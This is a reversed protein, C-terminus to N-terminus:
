VSRVEKAFEKPTKGYAEKFCKGFYSPSTFGVSYIIETVRLTTSHMLDIAKKMKYQRVFEVSNLGTISKIKRYLQMRSFGLETEIVGVSFKADSLNKDVVAQVDTIFQKDEEKLDVELVDEDGSGALSMYKKKLQHRLTLLKEIRILLHELTFPKPIYSDAGVKLGIMRHEQDANATLIIIPIHSTLDNKKLEDCLEYGDMVPMMVDTIILDPMVEKAKELGEQGNKAFHIKFKKSLYEVLFGRIEDNDEVVLIEENHFVVLDGKAGFETQGEDTEILYKRRSEEIVTDVAETEAEESELESIIPLLVVFTAGTDHGSEAYIYGNHLEILTKSFALGIGVGDRKRVYNDAGKLQYFQDFILEEYGEPLGAGNDSVVVKIYEKSDDFDEKLFLPLEETNYAAIAINISDGHTSYKIANDVLNSLVKELKDPDFDMMLIDIESNFQLSINQSESYSTFFVSLENIFAVINANKQELPLHGTEVKRFDLLQKVLRLMRETSRQIMSLDHSMGAEASKEKIPGNLLNSIITLPTKLEHSINTFFLFKATNLEKINEKELHELKLENEFEQRKQMIFIALFVLGIIVILYMVYSWTTEYWYPQIEFDISLYNPNWDGESNSTMVSFSYVGPSLFTYSALRNEPNTEVWDDNVGELRYKYKSKQPNSFQMSSFEVSIADNEPDLVLRNNEKPENNNYSYKEIAVEEGSVLFRTFRISSVNSVGGIKQPNFYTIGNIGGFFMTGNKDQWSSWKRFNNHQLGDSANYQKFSNDTTNLNSIGEDTSIWLHNASDMLIAYSGDNALGDHKRLHEFTYEGKYDQPLKVKVLGGGFTAIWMNHDDDEFFSLSANESLVNSGRERTSISIKDIPRHNEDLRVRWVGRTSTAVWLYGESDRFIQKINENKFEPVEFLTFVPEEDIYDVRILGEGFDSTIWIVGKSDEIIAYVLDMNLKPTTLKNYSEMRAPKMQDDFWIRKVGGAPNSMWLTNQRDYNLGFVIGRNEIGVSKNFGDVFQVANNELKLHNVGGYYTSVWLNGKDDGTIQNVIKDTLGAQDGSKETISFFPDRNLDGKFLGGRLTGIWLMDSRDKLVTWYVGHRFTNVNEFVPQYEVIEKEGNFQGIGKGWVLFGINGNDEKYLANVQKDSIEEPLQVQTNITNYEFTGDAHKIVENIGNSHSVFLQGEENDIIDKVSIDSLISVSSEFGSTMDINLLQNGKVVWISGSRDQYIKRIFVNNVYQDELIPYTIKDIDLVDPKMTLFGVNERTAFWIKNPDKIDPHISVVHVARLERLSFMKSIGESRDYVNVARPNLIWIRQNQDETIQNIQNNAIHISQNVDNNIERFKYGDYEFLGNPTALWIYGYSDQFIDYISNQTFGAEHDIHDFTLEPFILKSQAKTLQSSLMGIALFVLAFVIIKREM